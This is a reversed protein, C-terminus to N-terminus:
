ANQQFKVIKLQKLLCGGPNQVAENQYEWACNILAFYKKHFEYNRALTIKAKFTEGIKLEKKEDYDADYCPILGHATNNSITGYNM